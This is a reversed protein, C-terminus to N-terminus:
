DKIQPRCKTCRLHRHSGESSPFCPRPPGLIDWIPTQEVSCCIDVSRSMWSVISVLNVRFSVLNPSTLIDTATGNVLRGDVFRDVVRFQLIADVHGFMM